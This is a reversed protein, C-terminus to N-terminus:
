HEEFVATLTPADLIRDTWRELQALGAAQIRSVAM